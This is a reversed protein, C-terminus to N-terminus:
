GLDSGRRGSVYRDVNGGREGSVGVEVDSVVDEHCELCRDRLMMKGHNKNCRTQDKNDSACAHPGKRREVGVDDVDSDSTQWKHM